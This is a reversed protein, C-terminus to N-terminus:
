EGLADAFHEEHDVALLLAALRGDHIGLEELQALTEAIYDRSRGNKGCGQRIVSAKEMTTYHGAYQM